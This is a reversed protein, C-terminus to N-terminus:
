SSHQFCGSTQRSSSNFMDAIRASRAGGSRHATQRPIRTAEQGSNNRAIKAVWADDFLKCNWSSLARQALSISVLGLVVALAGFLVRM